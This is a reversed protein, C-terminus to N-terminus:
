VPYPESLLADEDRSSKGVVAKSDRLFYRWRGALDKAKM